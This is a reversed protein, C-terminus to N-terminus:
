VRRLWIRLARDSSAFASLSKNLFRLLVRVGEEMSLRDVKIVVMYLCTREIFCDVSVLVLLSFLFQLLLFLFVLFELSHSIVRLFLRLWM